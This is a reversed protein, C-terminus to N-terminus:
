KLVNTLVLERTKVDKAKINIKYVNDPLINIIKDAWEILVIIEPNNFYDEVGLSLLENESQLRYADIHCFSKLDKTGKRKDQIEYLKIINFTPSIIEEKVGLEKGFAKAFVTKGAGLDGVLAVIQGPKIHKALSRAIEKTQKESNSIIKKKKIKM